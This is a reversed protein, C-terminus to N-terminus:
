GNKQKKNFEKADSTAKKGLLTAIGLAFLATTAKLIIKLGLNNM